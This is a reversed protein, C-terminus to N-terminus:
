ANNWAELIGKYQKIAEDDLAIINYKDDDMEQELDLCYGYEMCFASNMWYNNETAIDNYDKKLEFQYQANPEVLVEIDIPRIYDESLTEELNNTDSLQYYATLWKAKAEDELDKEVAYSVPDIKCKRM